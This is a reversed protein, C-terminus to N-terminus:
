AAHAKSIADFMKQQVRPTPISESRDTFLVKGDKGIVVTLREAIGVTDNWAGYQQAVAGKMDALLTQKLGEREKFAKHTYSSDRSIGFLKAGASEVDPFRDRIECMEATCVPSFDLPYFMLVVVQGRQEALHVAQNNEDRLTFDPAEQGVVIEAM